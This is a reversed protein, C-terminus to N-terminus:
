RTCQYNPRPQREQLALLRHVLESGDFLGPQSPLSSLTPLAFVHRPFLLTKSVPRGVTRRSIPSSLPNKLPKRRTHPKREAFAAPQQKVASLNELFALIALGSLVAAVDSTAAIDTPVGM